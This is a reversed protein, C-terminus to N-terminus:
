VCVCDESFCFSELIIFTVVRKLRLVKVSGPLLFYSEWKGM